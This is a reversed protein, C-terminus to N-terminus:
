LLRRIANACRADIRRMDADCRTTVAILKLTSIDGKQM